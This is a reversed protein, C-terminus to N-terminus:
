KPQEDNIEIWYGDPDQLYIQKVGDVRTTPTKSDGKWNSYTIKNKELTAIIPDLSSVSFCFHTNKDTILKSTLGSILHFTGDGVNFWAHRNDKFPEDTQELGIIDKYFATSKELDSVYYAAHNFTPKQQQAAAFNNMLVFLVLFAFLIIPRKMVFLFLFVILLSFYM